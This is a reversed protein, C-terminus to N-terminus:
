VPQQGALEEDDLEPRRAVRPGKLMFLYGSLVCGMLLKVVEIIVFTGRLALYRARNASWGTTFELKRALFTIEPALAFYGFIAMILMAAALGIALRNVHTAYILLVILSAGFFFQLIGWARMFQRTLEAQHHSLLQAVADTGVAKVTKALEAPPNAIILDASQSGNTDIYMMFLCGVIWAGLLFAAARRLHM